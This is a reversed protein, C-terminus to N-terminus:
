PLRRRAQAQTQLEYQAISARQNIYNDMRASEVPFTSPEYMTTHPPLEPEYKVTPDNPDTLGMVHPNILAFLQNKRAILDKAVFPGKTVFWEIFSTYNSRYVPDSMLYSILPWEDGIEDKFISRTRDDCNLALNFDWPIWKLQGNFNYLYYNHPMAGYSDWDGIVSSAGLVKLFSAVDFVAELNKRWLQPNTRRTPAHLTNIAGEIDEFSVNKKTIIKKKLILRQLSKGLTIKPSTSTELELRQM